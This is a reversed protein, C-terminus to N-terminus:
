VFGLAIEWRWITWTAIKTRSNGSKGSHTFTNPVCRSVHFSSLSPHLLRCPSVLFSILDVYNGRASIHSLLFLSSWSFLVTNIFYRFSNDDLYRTRGEQRNWKRTSIRPLHNVESSHLCQRRWPMRLRVQISPMSHPPSCVQMVLRLILTTKTLATVTVMKVRTIELGVPPLFWVYVYWHSYLLLQLIKQLCNSKKCSLVYRFLIWRFQALPQHCSKTFV